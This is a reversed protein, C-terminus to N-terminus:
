ISFPLRKQEHFTDLLLVPIPLEIDAIIATTAILVNSRMGAVEEAPAPPTERLPPNRPAGMSPRRPPPNVPCRPATPQLLPSTRAARPQRCGVQPEPATASGANSPTAGSHWTCRTCNESSYPQRTRLM